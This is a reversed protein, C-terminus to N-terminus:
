KHLGYVVLYEHPQVVYLTRPDFLKFVIRIINRKNLIAAEFIQSLYYKIM